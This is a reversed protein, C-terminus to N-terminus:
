DADNVFRLSGQQTISRYYCSPRARGDAGLTHCAGGALRRVLYLLSNQECNVRVDVLQLVNGSTAGKRWLEQRSTSWLVAISEDLTAALAAENVYGVFLVDGSDVDQLVVPLVAEDAAAIKSIKAFDLALQESEEVDVLNRDTLM